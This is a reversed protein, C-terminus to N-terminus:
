QMTPRAAEVAIRISRGCGESSICTLTLPSIMKFRTAKSPGSCIQESGHPGYRVVSCTGRADIIVLHFPPEFGCSVVFDHIADSFRQRDHDNM